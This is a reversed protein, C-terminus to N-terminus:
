LPLERGTSVREVWKLRQERQAQGGSEIWRELEAPCEDSEYIAQLSQGNEYLDRYLDTFFEDCIRFNEEDRKGAVISPHKPGRVPQRGNRERRKSYTYWGLSVQDGTKIGMLSAPERYFRVQVDYSPSYMYLVQLTSIVPRRGSNEYTCEPHQFLLFIRADQEAANDIVKRLLSSSGDYGLVFVENGVEGDALDTEDVVKAHKDLVMVRDLVWNGIRQTETELVEQSILVAVVLVLITAELPVFGLLSQFLIWGIGLLVVLGFKVGRRYRANAYRRKVFRGIRQLSM